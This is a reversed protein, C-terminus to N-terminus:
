FVDQQGYAQIPPMGAWGIPRRQSVAKTTGSGHQGRYSEACRRGSGEGVIM